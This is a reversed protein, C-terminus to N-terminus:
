IRKLVKSLADSSPKPDYGYEDIYKKFIGDYTPANLNYKKKLDFLQEYKGANQIRANFYYYFTSASSDKYFLLKGKKLSQLITKLNAKVELDQPLSCIESIFYSMFVVDEQDLTVKSNITASSVDCRQFLTEISIKTKTASIIEELVHQWNREKDIVTYIIRKVKPEDSAESLYKLLGLLESGPGGGISTVTMVTDSFLPAGIHQRALRLFDYNFEAHPLAYRFVYAAQTALDSYDILDRECKTLEAYSASLSAFRASIQDEWDDHDAAGQADLKALVTKVADYIM